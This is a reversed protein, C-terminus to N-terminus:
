GVEKMANHLSSLKSRISSDIMRSGVKVILGGILSADVTLKIRVDKGTAAKLSQALDTEQAKTLAKAATVEATVEGREAAAMAKVAAIVRPLVFLRRKLAMLAITNGVTSSLGMKKAIAAMAAGQEDRSYVPSSVLDRLDASAELAAALADLESEVAALAKSDRAIEFLATAYRGAIGASFSASEAM